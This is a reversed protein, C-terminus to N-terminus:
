VGCRGLEGASGWELGVIEVGDCCGKEWGKEVM